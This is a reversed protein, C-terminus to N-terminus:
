TLVTTTLLCKTTYDDRVWAHGEDGWARGWSNRVLLYHDSGDRASGVALVAHKALTVEDPVGNVRADGDPKFFSKTIQLVLVVPRSAELLKRIEVVTRPVWAVKSQHVEKITAPVQWDQTPHTLSYPWFEELPQGDKELAEAVTDTSLGLKPNKHSRQVGKYYLYEVSLFDPSGRQGEHAATTSFVLCTPRKGQDRAAGFRNRLDVDIQLTM